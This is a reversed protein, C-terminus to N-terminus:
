SPQLQSFLMGLDDMAYDEMKLELFDEGKVILVMSAGGAGMGVKDIDKSLAKRMEGESTVFYVATKTAAVVCDPGHILAVVEQKDAQADSRVAEERSAKKDAVAQARRAEEAEEEEKIKRAAEEAAQQQRALEEDRKRKEEREVALKAELIRNEEERKVREAAETFGQMAGFVKALEEMEFRGAAVLIGTEGGTGDGTVLLFSGDPHSRVTEIASLEAAEVGPVSSSSCAYGIKTDSVGILCDEGWAEAVLEQGGAVRAHLARKRAEKEAVSELLRKQRLEEAEKELREKELQRAREQAEKEERVKEQVKNHVEGLLSFFSQLEEMGFLGAEIRVPDGKGEVVLELNGEPSSVVKGVDSLKEVRTGALITAL